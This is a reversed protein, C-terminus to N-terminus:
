SRMRSPEAAGRATEVARGGWAWALLASQVLEIILVAWAAGGLGATPILWVNLLALLGLSASLSRLVVREMGVALLSITLFDNLTAPTLSLALIRLAPIAGRYATGFFFTVVPDALVMILAAGAAAALLLVALPARYAGVVDEDGTGATRSMMPFLATLVAGNGARAAEVGRAAASFLGTTLSGALAPLVLLSFRQYVLRLISLGAMPAGARLVSLMQAPVASAGRWLDPNSPWCLLGALMAAAVQVLM